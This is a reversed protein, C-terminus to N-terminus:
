GLKRKRFAAMFFGDCRQLGPLLTIYGKELDTGPQGQVEETLRKPLMENLDLAELDYQSQLWETQRENEEPNITCTSYILKGGPKVYAVAQKLISRQLKSLESLQEQSIRYKIDQKRGIVGLGSCPVDALVYDVQEVMTEDPILADWVQTRVNSYQMRELNEQIREVKAESIDRASVEGGGALLLKEAAQMSKGGPAACVDLIRDGAKPKILCGQLVSSEDQVTFLGERFARIRNLYNYGTLQLTNETYYGDRVKIGAASLSDCVEQKTTRALNIRVTLPPEQLFAQLSKEAIETSYWSCMKDVLWEPMSYQVSLAKTLDKERDPLSIADRSRILNRLVGNVFGTLQRFGKKKTLMVAENCAAADPVRDLFLIQYASMRLINRIYPKCKQVPTNSVYNLKYDLQLRNELTGNCLRTYFSREQKNMYQYNRLTLNMAESATRRERDVDTLTELALERVNISSGAM